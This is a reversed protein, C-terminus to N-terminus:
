PNVVEFVLDPGRLIAIPGPAQVFLDNLYQRQGEAERRRRALEVHIRVRALLDRASFPKVLFDDAGAGLSDVRVEEGARASLMMVAVGRTREDARLAKLLGFGDLRPMMVDTLVLDPVHARASELAAQGDAVAEVTWREALLLRQVYDRM